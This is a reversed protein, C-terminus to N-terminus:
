SLFRDLGVSEGENARKVDVSRCCPCKFFVCQVFSRHKCRLCACSVALGLRLEVISSAM